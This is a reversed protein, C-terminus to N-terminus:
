LIHMYWARFLQHMAHEECVCVCVCV